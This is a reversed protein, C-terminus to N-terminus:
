RLFHLMATLGLHIGLIPDLRSALGLAGLARLTGESTMALCDAM